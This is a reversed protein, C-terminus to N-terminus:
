PTALFKQYQNINIARYPEKFLCLGLHLSLTAGPVLVQTAAPATYTVVSGSGCTQIRSIPVGLGNMEAAVAFASKNLLDSPIVIGVPSPTPTPTPSPTPRRWFYVGIGIVIALVIIGLVVYLWPFPRKGAAVGFTVDPGNDFEVDAQPEIGVVLHFRYGDKPPASAPPAIVVTVPKSANASFESSTEGKISYWGATGEDRTVVSYSGRRVGGTINAVMHTVEVSAGAKLTGLQVNPTTVQFSAM